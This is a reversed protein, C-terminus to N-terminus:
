TAEKRSRPLFDIKCPYQLTAWFFKSYAYVFPSFMLCEFLILLGFAFLFEASTDGVFEKNFCLFLLEGPLWMVPWIWDFDVSYRHLYRSTLLFGISLFCLFPLLSLSFLARLLIKHRVPRRALIFRFFLPPVCFAFLLTSNFKLLFSAVLALRTAIESYRTTRDTWLVYLCFSLFLLMPARTM